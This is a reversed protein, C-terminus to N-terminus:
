LDNRFKESILQNIHFGIKSILPYIESFESPEWIQTEIVIGFNAAKVRIKRVSEKDINKSFFEYIEVDNTLVNALISGSWGLNKLKGEIIEYYPFSNLLSYGDINEFINNNEILCYVNFFPGLRVVDEFGIYEITSNQVIIFGANNNLLWKKFYKKNKSIDDELGIKCDLDYKQSLLSVLLEKQFTPM